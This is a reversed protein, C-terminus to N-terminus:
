LQTLRLAHKHAIRSSCRRSHCWCYESDALCPQMLSLVLVMIQLSVLHPRHVLQQHGTNSQTSLDAVPEQLDVAQHSTM